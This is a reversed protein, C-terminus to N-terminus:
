LLANNEERLPDVDVQAAAVLQKLEALDGDLMLSADQGGNLSPSTASGLVIPKVEVSGDKLEKGINRLISLERLRKMKHRVNKDASFEALVKDIKEEVLTKIHFALAQTTFIGSFRYSLWLYLVLAKHLTELSTLYGKDVTMERDLIELNLEPIELISGGGQTAVCKAFATLMMPTDKDRLSAPAACITIRDGVTLDKIPHLVDAIGIQDRLGCLHYRPHMRSIEHLRLMVYSFPTEPPFYTAFRQLVTTPPFIGASTIPEAESQMARQIIPLDSKELSTVLGLNQTPSSTTSM